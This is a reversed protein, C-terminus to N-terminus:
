DSESLLLPFLARRAASLKGDHFFCRVADPYRKLTRLMAPPVDLGRPVIPMRRLADFSIRNRRAFHAAAKISVADSKFVIKPPRM